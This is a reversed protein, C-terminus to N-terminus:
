ERYGDYIEITDESVIISTKTKKIIEMLEELTNIEIFTDISDDKRYKDIENIFPIGLEILPKVNEKNYWYGTTILEFKM